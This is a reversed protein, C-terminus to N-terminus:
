IGEFEVIVRLKRAAPDKRTEKLGELLRKAEERTRIELYGKVAPGGNGTQTRVWPLGYRNPQRQGKVTSWKGNNVILMGLAVLQKLALSIANKSSIGTAQRLMKYTIILNGNDRMGNMVWFRVIALLVKIAAPPCAPYCPSGMLDDPLAVFLGEFIKEETM